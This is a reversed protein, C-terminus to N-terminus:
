LRAPRADITLAADTGTTGASFRYVAGGPPLTPWVSDVRLLDYRPAGNVLVTRDRPNLVAVDGANLTGTLAITGRGVQEVAPTPLAASGAAITLVLRGDVNGANGVTISSLPAAGGFGLNFAANFGMGPSAGPLGVTGGTQPGYVRPDLAVFEVVCKGIRPLMAADYPLARRRVRAWVTDAGDRLVLPADTSAVAFATRAQAALAELHDPDDGRLGFELLITRPQALDTGGWAGHDAPRDTDQTRLGPLDDLGDIATVHFRSGPGFALGNWSGAGFGAV